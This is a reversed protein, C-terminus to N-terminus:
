GVGAFPMRVRPQGNVTDFIWRGSPFLDFQAVFRVGFDLQVAAVVKEDLLDASIMGGPVGMKWGDQTWAADQSMFVSRQGSQRGM